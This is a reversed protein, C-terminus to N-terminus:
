LYGWVGDAFMRESVEERVGACQLALNVPKPSPSPPSSPSPPPARTCRRHIRESFLRRKPVRKKKPVPRVAVGPPVSFPLDSPMTSSSQPANVGTQATQAPLQSPTIPTNNPSCATCYSLVKIAYDLPVLSFHANLATLTDAHTRHVGNVVHLLAITANLYRYHSPRPVPTFESKSRSSM